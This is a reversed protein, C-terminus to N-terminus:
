IWGNPENHSNSIYAKMELMNDRKNNSYDRMAQNYILSPYAQTMIIVERYWCVSVSVKM